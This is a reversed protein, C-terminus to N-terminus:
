RIAPTQYQRLEFIALADSATAASLGYIASPPRSTGSLERQRVVLDPLFAFRDDKQAMLADIDGPRQATGPITM